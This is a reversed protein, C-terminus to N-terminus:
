KEENRDRLFYIPLYFLIYIMSFLIAVVYVPVTLPFSLIPHNLVWELAKFLKTFIETLEKDYDDITTM